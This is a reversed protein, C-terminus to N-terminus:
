RTRDTRRASIAVHAAVDDNGDQHGHRSRRGGDQEGREAFQHDFLAAHEIEADLAHHQDAGDDRHRDGQGGAVVQKRDGAGGCRRGQRRQDEAHQRQRERGVLHRGPKREGDQAGAKRRQEPAGIGALANRGDTRGKRRFQRGVRDPAQQEPVGHEDVQCQDHHHGDPPEQLTGAAAQDQACDALVVQRGM